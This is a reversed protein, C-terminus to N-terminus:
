FFAALVYMFPTVLGGNKCARHNYSIRKNDNGSLTSKKPSSMILKFSIIYSVITHVKISEIITDM